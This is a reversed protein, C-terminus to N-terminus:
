VIHHLDVEELENALLPKVDFPDAALLQQRAYEHKAIDKEPVDRSRERKVKKHPPQM